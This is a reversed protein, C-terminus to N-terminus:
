KKGDAIRKDNGGGFRGETETRSRKYYAYNYKDRSTESQTFNPIEGIVPVTFLKEIDERSGIKSNFLFILVIGVFSIAGGAFGGMIIYKKVSPFSKSWPEKAYDVVEVSSGKIYSQIIQPAKEAVANVIKTAVAKDPNTINIQFIETDNMANASMMAKITEASYEGDLQNSVEDLVKSSKLFELYTSVLSKATAVDSGTIRKVETQVNENYNNVYLSASATYLPTLSDAYMYGAGACIVASLVIFISKRLVFLILGKIDIEFKDM